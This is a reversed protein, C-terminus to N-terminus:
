QLAVSEGEERRAEGVSASEAEREESKPDGESEDDTLLLPTSERYAPLPQQPLPEQDNSEMENNIENVQDM